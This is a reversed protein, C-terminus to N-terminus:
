DFLVKGLRVMTAGEEIAIQYDNSMGMSLEKLTPFDKQLDDRLRRLTKFCRRAVEPDDSLAGITMLGQIALHPLKTVKGLFDGVEDPKFGGKQPENSTNVQILVPMTKGIKGAEDNIKQALRLSDVSHIVDFAAVVDRVKNTQLRGIFHKTIHPPLHPIKDKAEQWRSEGIHTMGSRIVAKVAEINRGKTVAVVITM